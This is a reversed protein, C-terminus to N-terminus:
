VDTSSEWSCVSKIIGKHEPTPVPGCDDIPERTISALLSPDAHIEATNRWQTLLIAIPGMTRPDAAGRATAVLEEIFTERDAESLSMSWPLAEPLAQRVAELRRTTAAPHPLLESFPLDKDPSTM